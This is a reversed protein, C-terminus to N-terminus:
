SGVTTKLLNELETTNLDPTNNLEKEMANFFQDEGPLGEATKAPKAFIMVMAITGILSAIVVIAIAMKPEIHPKPIKLKGTKTDKDAM